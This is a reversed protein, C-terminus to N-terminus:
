SGPAFDKKFIPLDSMYDLFKGYKIFYSAENEHECSGM